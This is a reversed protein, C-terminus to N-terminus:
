LFFFRICFLYYPPRARSHFIIQDKGYKTFVLRWFEVQSELGKRPFLVTSLAGEDFEGTQLVETELVKMSFFNEGYVLVGSSSLVLGFLLSLSVSALQTSFSLQSKSSHIDM